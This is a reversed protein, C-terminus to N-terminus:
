WFQSIPDSFLDSFGTSRGCYCHPARRPAIMSYYLVAMAEWFLLKEDYGGESVQVFDKVMLNWPLVMHFLHEPFSIGAEGKSHLSTKSTFPQLEFRVVTLVSYAVSYADTGDEKNRSVEM